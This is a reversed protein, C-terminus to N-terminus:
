LITVKTLKHITCNQPNVVMLRETKIKKKYYSAIATIDKDQKHTYFCRGKSLTNLAISEVTRQRQAEM